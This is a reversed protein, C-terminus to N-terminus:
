LGQAWLCEVLVQCTDLYLVQQMHLGALLWQYRQELVVTDPKAALDDQFLAGTTTKAGIDSCAAAQASVPTNLLPQRHALARGSEKACV